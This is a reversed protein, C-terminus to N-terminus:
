LEELELLSPHIDALGLQATLQMVLQKTNNSANINRNM